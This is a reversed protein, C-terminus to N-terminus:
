RDVQGPGPPRRAGSRRRLVALADRPELGREALLVLLHYLLDAAEEAIRARTDARTRDTTLAADDKAAMLVETAEEVVKRAISDVGGELLRATYSAVPDATRRGEITAWLRELEDFGQTPADSTAPPGPSAAPSMAAQADADLPVLGADFCSRTGTHCTPGTPEARVLYADGDCDTEISRVRLTNGSTEGKLWLLDRSRSHFHVLGTRRTADLSEDDIWGLMLVRGDSADQVVAARLRDDRTSAM